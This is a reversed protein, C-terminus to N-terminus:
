SFEVELLIRSIEVIIQPRYSSIEERFFSFFEKFETKQPGVKHTPSSETNTLWSDFLKYDSAPEDQKFIFPVFGAM